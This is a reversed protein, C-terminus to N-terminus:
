VVLYAGKNVVEVSNLLFDWFDLKQYDFYGYFSRIQGHLVFFNTCWAFKSRIMIVRLREFDFDRKVIVLTEKALDKLRQTLHRGVSYWTISFDIRGLKELATGKSLYKALYRGASKKIKETRCSKSFDASKLAPLVATLAQRWARDLQQLSLIYKGQKYFNVFVTHFHIAGRKQLELVIVIAETPLGAKALLRSLVKRWYCLIEKSRRLASLKIEPSDSPLTATHFVLNKRGYKSELLNTVGVLTRKAHSTLGRLGKPNRVKVIASKTKLQIDGTQDLDGGRKTLSSSRKTEQALPKPPKTRSLPVALGLKPLPKLSVSFYGSYDAKLVLDRTRTIMYIHTAEIGVKVGVDL